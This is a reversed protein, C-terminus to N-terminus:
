FQNKYIEEAIEWIYSDKTMEVGHEVKLKYSYSELEQATFHFDQIQTQDSIFLEQTEFIRLIEEVQGAYREITYQPINEMDHLDHEDDPEYFNKM